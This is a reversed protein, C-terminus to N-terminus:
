AFAVAGESDAEGGRKGVVFHLGEVDLAGGVAGGDRGPTEAAGRLFDKFDLGNGM